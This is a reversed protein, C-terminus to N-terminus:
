TSQPQARLGSGQVNVRFGSGQVRLGPGSGQVWIASSQDVHAGLNKPEWFERFFTRHVFINAIYSGAVREVASIVMTGSQRRAQGGM